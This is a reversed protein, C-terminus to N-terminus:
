DLVTLRHRNKNITAQGIGKVKILEDVSTFNGYEARYDVIAQATSQGVGTLSILQAVTATNINIKTSKAAQNSLAQYAAHVDSYCQNGLATTMTGCALVGMLLIQWVRQLLVNPLLTHCATNKNYDQNKPLM